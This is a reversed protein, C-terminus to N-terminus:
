RSPLGACALIAFTRSSPATFLPGFRTLLSALSAPVSLPANLLMLPFSTVDATMMWTDGVGPQWARSRGAVAMM